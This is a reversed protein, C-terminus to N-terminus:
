LCGLGRARLTDTRLLMLHNINTPQASSTGAILVLSCRYASSRLVREPMSLCVDPSSIVNVGGVLAADCDRNLLARVGQYLAVNSSSCTTDVVISPGGLQMAYSIRGSLFAKLTGSAFDLNLLICVLRLSLMGTSYYVDIDERLNQAYDHTAAGVYCGVREPLFTPTAGPVYGADELAQYAAHLLLRQQPDMSKAERPSIKFFTNDFEEFGEVFNGTHARM